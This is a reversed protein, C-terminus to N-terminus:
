EEDKIEEVIKGIAWRTAIHFGHYPYGQYSSDWDAIAKACVERDHSSEFEEPGEAWEAIAVFYEVKVIM